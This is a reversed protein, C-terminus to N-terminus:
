RSGGRRDIVFGYEDIIGFTKLAAIAIARPRLHFLLMSTLPVRRGRRQAALHLLFCAKAAHGQRDIEEIIPWAMQISETYRPVLRPHRGISGILLSPNEEEAECRECRWIKTSGQLTYVVQYGVPGICWASNGLLKTDILADIDTDMLNNIHQVDAIVPTIDNSAIAM